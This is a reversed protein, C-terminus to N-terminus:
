SEFSLEDPYGEKSERAREKEQVRVRADRTLLTNSVAVCMTKQPATPPRHCPRSGIFRIVKGEIGIEPTGLAFLVRISQSSVFLNVVRNNIM